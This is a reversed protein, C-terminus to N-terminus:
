KKRTNTGNMEFLVRGEPDKHVLTWSEHSDERFSAKIVVTVMEPSPKSTWTMTKSADNWTGQYEAVDGSSVFMWSRYTKKATDYTMLTTGSVKPSSEGPDVVWDQKLFRGEMVWLGTATGKSTPGPADIPPKITSRTEWRGVWRNLPALEAVEASPGDAATAPLAFAALCLIARIPTKM